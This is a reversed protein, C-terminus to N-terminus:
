KTGKKKFRERELALWMESTTLQVGTRYSISNQEATLADVDKLIHSREICDSNGCLRLGARYPKGDKDLPNDFNDFDGRHPRCVGFRTVIRQAPRAACSNCIPQGGREVRKTIAEDAYGCRICNAVDVGLRPM